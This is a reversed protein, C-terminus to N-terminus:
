PCLQPRPLLARSQSAIGRVQAQKSPSLVLCAALLPEARHGAGRLQRSRLLLTFCCSVELSTLSDSFQTAKRAQARKRGVTHLRTDDHSMLDIFGALDIDSAGSETHCARRVAAQVSRLSVKPAGDGLAQM